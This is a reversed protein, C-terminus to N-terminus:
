ALSDIIKQKLGMENFDSQSLSISIMIQKEEKHKLIDQVNLLRDPYTILDVLSIGIAESFSILTELDTKTAGREFRAYQSQTINMLDALAEQSFNRKERLTRINALITKNIEKM